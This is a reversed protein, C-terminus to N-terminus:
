AAETLDLLTKLLGARTTKSKVITADFVDLTKDSPENEAFVAVPCKLARIDPLLDLGSGDPLNIDLLVLDFYGDALRSRGECVSAATIVEWTDDLMVQVLRTIDPDDEIHLIRRGTVVAPQVGLLVSNVLQQQDVPKDIWDVIFAPQNRLSARAKSANISIVIVPININSEDLERIFSLGDIGALGLDLIMIDFQCTKILKQATEADEAQEIEFGATLLLFEGLVAFDDDDECILVRLKEVGSSNHKLENVRDNLDDAHCKDARQGGEILPGNETVDGDTDM